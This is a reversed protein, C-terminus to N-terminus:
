RSSVPFYPNAAADRKMNCAAHFTPWKARLVIFIYTTETCLLMKIIFGFIFYFIKISLFAESELFTMM